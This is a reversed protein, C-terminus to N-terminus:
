LACPFFFHKTLCEHCDTCLPSITVDTKAANIAKRMHLFTDRSDILFNASVNNRIPAFSGFRNPTQNVIGGQRTNDCLGCM